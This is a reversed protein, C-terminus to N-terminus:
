ILVGFFYWTSLMQESKTHSNELSLINRLINQFLVIQFLVIQFWDFSCYELQKDRTKDDPPPPHPPTKPM